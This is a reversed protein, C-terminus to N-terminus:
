IPWRRSSWSVDHGHTNVHPVIVQDHTPRPYEPQPQTPSSRPSPSKRASRRKSRPTARATKARLRKRQRAKKDKDKDQTQSEGHSDEQKGEIVKFQLNGKARRLADPDTVEVADGKPFKLGYCTTFSPGAIDETDEGLWIVKTM